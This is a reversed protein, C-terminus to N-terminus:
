KAIVAWIKYLFISLCFQAVCEDFIIFNILFLVMMLEFWFANYILIRAADTGHMSEIFTGIGMAASFTIFLIATLRTSVILSIIKKVM